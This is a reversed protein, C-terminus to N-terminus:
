PVRFVTPERRSLEVTLRSGVAIPKGSDDHERVISASQTSNDAPSRYSFSAFTRPKIAIDPRGAMKEKLEDCGDVEVPISHEGEFAACLNRVETIEVSRTEFTWWNRLPDWVFLYAFAAALLAYQWWYKRKLLALDRNQESM